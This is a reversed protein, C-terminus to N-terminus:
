NAVALKGNKHNQIELSSKCHQNNPATATTTTNSSHALLAAAVKKM